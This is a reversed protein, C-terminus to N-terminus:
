LIDGGYGGSARRPERFAPLRGAAGLMELQWRNSLSCGAPPRKRVVLHM